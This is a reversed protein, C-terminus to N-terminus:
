AGVGPVGSNYLTAAESASIARNFVRIDDHSGTTYFSSTLRGIEFPDTMTPLVSPVTGNYNLTRNAGDVYLKLRDANTGGSGDFVLCFHHPGVGAVTVYGYMPPDSDPDSIWNIICYLVANTYWVMGLADFKQQGVGIRKNTATRTGWASITAASRGSLSVPSTIYDGVGDFVFEGGSVTADGFYTGDNGNGSLDTLGTEPMLWLIEGGIGTPGGGGGGEASSNFTTPFTFM